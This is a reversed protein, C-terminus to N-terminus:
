QAEPPVINEPRFRYVHGNAPIHEATFTQDDFVQTVKMLHTRTHESRFKVTVSDGAKM